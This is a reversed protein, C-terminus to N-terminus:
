ATPEGRIELPPVPTGQLILRQPQFQFGDKDMELVYEGNPLPTSIFFQGLKNTKVARDTAGTQANKIEVIADTISHNDPTLVMGVLKNPTQPPEPFPLNPNVRVDSTAASQPQPTPQMSQISDSAPQTSAQSNNIVESSKQDNADPTTQAVEPSQEQPIEIEQAVQNPDAAEQKQQTYQAQSSAETDIAGAAVATPDDGLRRPQTSFAPKQFGERVDQQSVQVSGFSDSIYSLYQNEWEDYATAQREPEISSMFQKIRERKAPTLDVDEEFGSGTTLSSPEFRFAPPIHAERRWYYKTPKYLSRIFVVIWHDIPQEEIPVFAAMAGTAVSIAILPWKLFVPLNTAYILVALLVGALVMAFQKITMDGIIHFQYNTIDQPVPHERM